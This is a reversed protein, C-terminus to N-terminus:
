QFSIFMELMDFDVDQNRPHFNIISRVCECISIRNSSKNSTQVDSLSLTPPLTQQLGNKFGWQYDWEGENIM